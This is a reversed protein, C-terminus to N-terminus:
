SRLADVPRESAAKWAPYAGSALSVLVGFAFAGVLTLANRPVLIVNLAIQEVFAWLALTVLASAAVGLFGGAVGLLGAEVVLMSLVERKHVGVARLVGIEARRENVSMLMVNFISVGAVILSVAALGILFGNLLAFFENIRDLVSGLEFVSVRRERANLRAEVESAVFQADAGSDAQVVVQDFTSQVFVDPPLVVANDPRIPSISDSEALVAVVRYRNSEIELVSGVQLNLRAAVERGVIAGQRHTEPLTGAEAEFLARPRSMGYLQAFSRDSGSTVVAGDTKLPVVAGRGEAIREVSQVDRATLTELGSDANPSVIVQNGIGGLENTASLELVTGFVGLTAVAFVGILIGLAALGSRLRTRALNRRALLLAPFRRELAALRSM